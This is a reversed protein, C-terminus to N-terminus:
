QIFIVFIMHSRNPLPFLFIPHFRVFMFGMLNRGDVGIGDFEKFDLVPVGAKIVYCHLSCSKFMNDDVASCAALNGM